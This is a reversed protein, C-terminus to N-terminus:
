LQLLGYSLRGSVRETAEAGTGLFRLLCTAFSTKAPDPPSKISHLPICTM